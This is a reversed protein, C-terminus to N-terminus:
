THMLFHRDLMEKLAAWRLIIRGNIKYYHLGEKLHGRSILKRTAPGSFPWDPLLHAQEVTLYEPIAKSNSGSIEEGLRELHEEIWEVKQVLTELAEEMYM